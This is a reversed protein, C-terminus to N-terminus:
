TAATTAVIAMVSNRGACEASSGARALDGCSSVPALATRPM